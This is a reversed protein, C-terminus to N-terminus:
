PSPQALKAILEAVPRRTPMTLIMQNSIVLNPNCVKVNILLGLFLIVDRDQLQHNRLASRGHPPTRELDTGLLRQLCHLDQVPQRRTIALLGPLIRHTARNLISRSFVRGYVRHRISGRLTESKIYRIARSGTKNAFTISGLFGCGPWTL